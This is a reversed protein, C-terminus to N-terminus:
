QTWLLCMRRADGYSRPDNLFVAWGQTRDSSLRGAHTHRVPKAGWNRIEYVSEDAPVEGREVAVTPRSSNACVSKAAADSVVSSGEGSQRVLSEAHRLCSPDRSPRALPPDDHRHPRGFLTPAVERQFEGREWSRVAMSKFHGVKVDELDPTM